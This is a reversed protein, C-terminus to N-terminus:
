RPRALVTPASRGRLVVPEDVTWHVAEETGPTIVSADALV